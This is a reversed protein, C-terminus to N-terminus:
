RLGDTGISGFRTSPPFPNTGLAKRARSTLRDIEIQDSKNTLQRERGRDRWRNRETDTAVERDVAITAVSRTKPM